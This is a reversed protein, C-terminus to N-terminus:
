FFSYIKYRSKEDSFLYIYKKNFVENLNNIYEKRMQKIEYCLSIYKKNYIDFLSSNVEGIKILKNRVKLVKQFLGINELYKRNIQSIEYNFHKRRIEPSLTILDIDEPTFSVVLLKAIYDIYKVKERNIYQSRKEKTLELSFIDEDTKAFIILRDSNKNIQEVVKKTRFSKATALFYIAEIISTKGQANNGYIVNFNKSFCYKDDKILRYNILNLKEIYM